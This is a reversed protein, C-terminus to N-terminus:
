QSIPSIYLHTNFNFQQDNRVILGSVWLRVRKRANPFKNRVDEEVETLEVRVHVDKLRPEYKIITAELSRRVKDEWDENKLVQNFELDWIISGYDERGEVEGHRSVVLMMLHQAISEEYSCRQIQGNLAGSLDLPLKLYNMECWFITCIYIIKLLFPCRKEIKLIKYTNLQHLEGYLCSIRM